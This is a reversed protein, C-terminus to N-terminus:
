PLTVTYIGSDSKSVRTYVVRKGSIYLENNAGVIPVGSSIFKASGGATADVYNIDATATATASTLNTYFLFGAGETAPRGGAVADLIPVLNKAAGGASPVSSLKRLSKTETSGTADLFVYSGDDGTFGLPGANVDAIVAAPAPTAATVDVINLDVLRTMGDPALKNFAVYKGNASIAIIGKVGTALSVPAGLPAVPKVAKLEGASTRYIVNAGDAAMRLFGVAELELVDTQPTALTYVMGKLSDNAAAVVKTGNADGSFALKGSLRNASELTAADVRVLSTGDAPMTVMRALDQTPVVGNCFMAVFTNKLFAVRLPCTSTSLWNVKGGQAPDSIVALNTGDGVTRVVLAAAQIAPTSAATLETDQTFAIRLGDASAWLRGVVSNTAINLKPGAARSWVDLSAVSTSAPLPDHWRAVINGFTTVLNASHAPLDFVETATGGALPIAYVKTGETDSQPITQYIADDGAIGLLRKDLGGDVLKKSAMTPFPSAADKGADKDPKSTDDDDDGKTDDDDDGKGSTGSSSKGSTGDGSSAAGPGADEYVYTTETGCAVALLLLGTFSVGAVLLQARM